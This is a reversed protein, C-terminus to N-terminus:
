SVLRFRGDAAALECKPLLILTTLALANRGRWGVSGIWTSVLLRRYSKECVVM